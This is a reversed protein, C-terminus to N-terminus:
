VINYNIMLCFYVTSNERVVVEDVFVWSGGGASPHWDFLKITVLIIRIVLYDYDLYSLIRKCFIKNAKGV